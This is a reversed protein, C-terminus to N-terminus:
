EARKWSSLSEGKHPGDLFTFEYSDPTDFRLRIPARMTANGLSKVAYTGFFTRGQKRDLVIEEVVGGSWMGLFRVQRLDPDWGAMVRCEAKFSKDPIEFQTKGLLVKGDMDGELVFRSKFQDGQSISLQPIDQILSGTGNWKGAAAARYAQWLEDEGPGAALRRRYTVKPWDPVPKGDEKIDRMQWTFTDADVSVHDSFGEYHKGDPEFSEWKITWVDGSRSWHGTGHFGKSGYFWQRLTGTTNDHGIIEHGTSALKGDVKDRINLMMFKKGLTWHFSNSSVVQAGAPGLDLAGEPLAYQGEWEGILWALDQLQPSSAKGEDAAQCLGISLIIVGLGLIGSKM